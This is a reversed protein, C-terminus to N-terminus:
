ADPHGASVAVYWFRQTEHQLSFQKRGLIHIMLQYACYIRHISKFRPSPVQRIDHPVLHLCGIGSLAPSAMCGRRHIVILLIRAHRPAMLTGLLLAFGADRTM